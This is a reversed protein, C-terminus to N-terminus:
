VGGVFSTPVRVNVKVALLRAPTAVCVTPTATLLMGGTAGTMSARGCCDVITPKSNSVVTVAVSGSVAAELRVKAHVLATAEAVQANSM